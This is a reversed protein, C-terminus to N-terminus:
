APPLPIFINSFRTLRTKSSNSFDSDYDYDRCSPQEYNLPCSKKLSKWDWTVNGEICEDM